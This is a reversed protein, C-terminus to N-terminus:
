FSKSFKRTLSGKPLNKCPIERNNFNNEQHWRYELQKNEEEKEVHSSLSNLMQSSVNCGSVKGQCWYTLASLSSWRSNIGNQVKVQHLPSFHVHDIIPITGSAPLLRITDNNQCQSGGAGGLVWRYTSMNGYDTGLAGDFEALCECLGGNNCPCM